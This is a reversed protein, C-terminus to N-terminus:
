ERDFAAHYGKTLAARTRQPIELLPVIKVFPNMICILAIMNGGFMELLKIMITRM